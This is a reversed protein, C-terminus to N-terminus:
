RKRRVKPNIAPYSLDVLLNILVVAVAIFLVYGQIVPFDRRQVANVAMSGLGPIAFVAEVVVIGGLLRAAQMGFVTVVPISSNRLVHKRLVRSRSNGRAYASRIYPKSLVDIVGGRTQRAIEAVTSSGLALAPLAIHSLWKLFGEDLPAYGTAPFWSRNVAFAAVLLLGVWYSPMAVGLTALVSVFRDLWSGKRSGAIAGLTVGAILALALSAVTISLTPPLAGAISSTVSRGSYLSSGLDGRLASGLWIFYQEHLPATLGLQERVREVQELTANEGAIERAPDGPILHILLFIGISVLFVSSIAQLVRSLILM